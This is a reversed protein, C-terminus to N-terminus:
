EAEKSSWQSFPIQCIEEVSRHFHNILRDLKDVTIKPCELAEIKNLTKPCVGLIHSMERKTLHNSLRLAKVNQCFILFHNKQEM